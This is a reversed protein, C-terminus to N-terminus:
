IPPGGASSRTSGNIVAQANSGRLSRLEDRLRKRIRTVAAQSPKILLKGHYRRVDRAMERDGQILDRQDAKRQSQPRQEVPDGRPKGADCNLGDVETM